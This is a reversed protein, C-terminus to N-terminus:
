NRYTCFEIPKGPEKRTTNAFAPKKKIKQEGQKEEVQMKNNEKGHRDKEKAKKYEEEYLSIFPADNDDRVIEEPTKKLMFHLFENFIEKRSIRELGM